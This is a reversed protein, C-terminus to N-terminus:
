AHHNEKELEKSILVNIKDVLVNIDGVLARVPLSLKSSRRLIELGHRSTEAFNGMAVLADQDTLNNPSRIEERRSAEYAAMRTTFSRRALWARAHQGVSVFLRDLFIGILVLRFVNM